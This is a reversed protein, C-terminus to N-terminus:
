VEELDHLWSLHGKDNTNETREPLILEKDGIPVEPENDQIHKCKAEDYTSSATDNFKKKEEDYNRNRSRIMQGGRCYGNVNGFMFHFPKVWLYRLNKSFGKKGTGYGGRLRRKNRLRKLTKRRNGKKTKM